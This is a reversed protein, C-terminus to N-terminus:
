KKEEFPIQPKERRIPLILTMTTGEGKKSKVDIKGGHERVIDLVIMLGLGAGEQKTSFYPEFIHPLDTEEIGEGTDTFAVFLVGESFRASVLLRGGKPMAQIANRILNVFAQELKEPDVLARPLRPDLEAKVQIRREKLEYRFRHLAEQVIKNIDYLQFRAARRRAARLFSKVIHDLRGTEENLISVYPKLRAQATKSLKQCEKELLKLHIHLANLPNGMEHAIGAALRLISEVREFQFLQKESFSKETVDHLTIVTGVRRNEEDFFPFLNLLIIRERPAFIQFEKHLIRRELKLHDDLFQYIEPHTIYNLLSGHLHEEFSRGLIERAAQNVLVIQGQPDVFVIGEPLRNFISEILQREEALKRVYDEVNRRDIRDLRTLFKETFRDTTKM